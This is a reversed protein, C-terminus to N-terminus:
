NCVQVRRYGVFNGYPDYVAQRALYCGDYGYAPQAATAAIALGTAAGLGFGGWGWGWGGYGWGHASASTVSGALSAVVLAVASGAITIKRLNIM